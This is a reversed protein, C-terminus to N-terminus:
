AGVPCRELIFDWVPGALRDKAESPLEVTEGRHSLLTVRNELAGFAPNEACVRNAVVVDFGKKEMKARAHAILDNTEAAFGVFVQGPRRAGNARAAVDPARKLRLTVEDGCDEKKIKEPQFEVPAFDAVAASFVCVDQEPLAAQVAEDMEEATQVRVIEGLGSPLELATPGCIFTVRAGRRRAELAMALGMRGTSPNSLFRVPDLWEVTPGATVLVNKGALQGKTGRPASRLITEVAAVIEDLEALRGAGVDGCALEGAGPEIIRVGRLRLTEANRCTAPHEWMATNMAPALVVPGRFALATTTLADDAIGAVLKALCNATAPAIVLAQGWQALAIHEVEWAKAREFVDLYVPRGSLTEFTLPAVFRTANETMVVQVEAGARKFLRCLEASKYAAIGGTVGLLIRAGTLGSM